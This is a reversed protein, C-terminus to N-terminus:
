VLIIRCPMDKGFLFCAAPQSCEDREEVDKLKNRPIAIAKGVWNSLEATKIEDPRGSVLYIKITKPHPMKNNLLM